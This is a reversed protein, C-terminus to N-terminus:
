LSDFSLTIGGNKKSRRKLKLNISQTLHMYFSFKLQKTMKNFLKKSLQFSLELVEYHKENRPFLSYFIDLTLRSFVSFFDGITKTFYKELIRRIFSFAARKNKM